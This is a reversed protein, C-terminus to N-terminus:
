LVRWGLPVFLEEFKEIAYNDTMGSIYDCVARERSTGKDMLMRYESTMAEPHKMYYEFLLEIMQQAKHEEAKAKGGVYINRFMWHRLGQM